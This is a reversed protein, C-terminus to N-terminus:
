YTVTVTVTDAYSGVSASPQEPISAYVQHEQSSGNGTSALTDTGTINGWSTTRGANQFLNYSLFASDGDSMRRQGEDNNLGVNLGVDYSAGNSCKVTITSNGTHAGASLPNYQGFALTSASVDCSAIVEATVQFTTTETEAVALPAAAALISIALIKKKM